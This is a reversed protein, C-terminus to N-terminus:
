ERSTVQYANVSVYDGSHGVHAYAFGEDIWERLARNGIEDNRFVRVGARILSLWSPAKNEEGRSLQPLDSLRLLLKDEPWVLFPIGMDRARNSVTVINARRNHLDTVQNLDLSNGTATNM